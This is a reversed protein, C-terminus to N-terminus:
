ANIRGVKKNSKNVKGVLKGLVKIAGVKKNTSKIKGELM